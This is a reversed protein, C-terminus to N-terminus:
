KLSIMPCTIHCHHPIIKKKSPRPRSSPALSSSSSSPHHQPLHQHWYPHHPPCCIISNNYTTVDWSGSHYRLVGKECRWTWEFCVNAINKRGSGISGWKFMLMMRQFSLALYPTARNWWTGLDSRRQKCGLRGHVWELVCLVYTFGRHLQYTHCIHFGSIAFILSWSAMDKSEYLPVKGMSGM